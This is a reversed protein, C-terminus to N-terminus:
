QKYSINVNDEAAQKDTERKQEKRIRNWHMWELSCENWDMQCSGQKKKPQPTAWLVECFYM